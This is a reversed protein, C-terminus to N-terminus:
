CSYDGDPRSSWQTVTVPGGTFSALACDAEAGLLNHAGPIWDPVGSLAGSAAGGTILDWQASTSYVGVTSAGAAQLGAIMGQLDAVNM